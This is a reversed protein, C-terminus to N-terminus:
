LGAIRGGAVPLAVGTIYRAAPGALYAVAEAVEEPTGIRQLPIQSLFHQTVEDLTMGTLRSTLAKDQDHMDTEITGPCVANVRINHPGFELALVKTLGVVAFKSACYAALGAEAGLGVLSANNIIVGHKQKVMLPLVARCFDSVGKFNVRWTREWKEDDIELFDGVGVATGANNFLIDIRGFRAMTEQVCASIQGQNTVDVGLALSRVGQDEVEQRVRELASLDGDATLDTVVVQVGYEALKLATARGIGRQRGAGTIIAVKDQLPKM